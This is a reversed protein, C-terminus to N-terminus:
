EHQDLPSRLSGTTIRFGHVREQWWSAAAQWSGFHQAPPACHSILRAVNQGFEDKTFTRTAALRHVSREQSESFAATLLERLRVPNVPLEFFESKWDAAEAYDNLIDVFQLFSSVGGEDLHLEIFRRQVQDALSTSLRAGLWDEFPIQLLQLRRMLERATSHHPAYIIALQADEPRPVRVM